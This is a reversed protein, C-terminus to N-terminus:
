VANKLVVNALELGGVGAVCHPRQAGHRSNVQRARVVGASTRLVARDQDDRRRSTQYNVFVVSSLANGLEAERCILPRPISMGRCKPERNRLAAGLPAKKLTGSDGISSVAVRGTPLTYMSSVVARKPNRALGAGRSGGGPPNKRRHKGGVESQLQL